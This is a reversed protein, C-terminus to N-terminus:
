RHHNRSSPEGSRTVPAELGDFPQDLGPVESGRRRPGQREGLLRKLLGNQSSVGPAEARVPAQEASRTPWRVGAASWRLPSPLAAVRGNHGGRVDSHDAQVHGDTHRRPEPRPWRAIKTARSPLPIVAHSSSTMPRPRQRAHSGRMRPVPVASARRTVLANAPAAIAVPSAPSANSTTDTLGHTNTIM